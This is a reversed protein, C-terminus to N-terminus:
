RNTPAAEAAFFIPQPQLGRISCHYRRACASPVAGATEPPRASRQAEQSRPRRRAQFRHGPKTSSMWGWWLLPTVDAGASWSPWPRRPAPAAATSMVPERPQRANASLVDPPNESYVALVVM